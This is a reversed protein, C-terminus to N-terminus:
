EVPESLKVYAALLHNRFLWSLREIDTKNKDYERHHYRCLSVIWEVDDPRYNPRPHNRPLIHAGDVPSSGCWPIKCRNGDREKAAKIAQNIRVTRQHMLRKHTKGGPTM